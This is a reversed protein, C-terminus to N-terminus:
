ECGGALRSKLYNIRSRSEELSRNGPSAAARRGVYAEAEEVLRQIRTRRSLPSRKDVYDGNLRVGEVFSGLAETLAGMDMLIEGQLIHGHGESPYKRILEDLKMLATQGNGDKRLQDVPAYLSTILEIRARNALEREFEKGRGSQRRDGGAGADQLALAASGCIVAILLLWCCRDFADKFM